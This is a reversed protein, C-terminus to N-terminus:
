VWLDNIKDLSSFLKRFKRSNLDKIKCSLNLEIKHLNSDQHPLETIQYVYGELNKKIYDIWYKDKPTKQVFENRKLTINSKFILTDMGEEYILKKNFYFSSTKSVCLDSMLSRSITNLSSKNAKYLACLKPLGEQKFIFLKIGEIYRTTEINAFMLSLAFLILVFATTWSETYFTGNQLISKQYITVLSILILGLTSSLVVLFFGVAKPLLKILNDQFMLNLLPTLALILCLVAISLKFKIPLTSTSVLGVSLILTLFGQLPYVFISVLATATPATFITAVFFLIWGLSFKLGINAIINLM